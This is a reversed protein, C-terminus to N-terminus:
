YDLTKYLKNKNCKLNFAILFKNLRLQLGGAKVEQLDKEFFLFPDVVLRREKNEAHNKFFFIKTSIYEILYGFKM